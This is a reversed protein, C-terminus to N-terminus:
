FYVYGRRISEWCSVSHWRRSFSWHTIHDKAALASFTPLLPTIISVSLEVSSTLNLV